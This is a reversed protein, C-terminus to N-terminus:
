EEGAKFVSSLRLSLSLSLFSLPSAFPLSTELLSSSKRLFSFCPRKPERAVILDNKAFDDDGELYRTGEWFWLVSVIKHAMLKGHHSFQWASTSASVLSDFPNVYTYGRVTRWRRGKRELRM